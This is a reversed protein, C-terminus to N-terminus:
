ETCPWCRQNSRQDPHALSPPREGIAECGIRIAPARVLTPPPPLLRSTPCMTTAENLALVELAISTRQATRLPVTTMTLPVM